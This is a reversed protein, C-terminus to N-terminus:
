YYYSHLKLINLIKAFEAIKYITKKELLPFNPVNHVPIILM